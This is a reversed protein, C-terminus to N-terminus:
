AEEATLTLQGVIVQAREEAREHTHVYKPLGACGILRYGLRADSEIVYGLRGAAQVVEYARQRLVIRQWPDTCAFAEAAHCWCGFHALLHTLWQAEFHKDCRADWSEPVQRPTIQATNGLQPNRRLRPPTAISM